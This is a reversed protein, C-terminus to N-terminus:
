CNNARCALRGRWRSVVTCLSNEVTKRLSEDPPFPNLFKELERASAAYSHWDNSDRAKRWQEQLSELKAIAADARAAPSAIAVMFLFLVARRFVQLM